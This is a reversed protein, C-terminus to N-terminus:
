QKMWSAIERLRMPTIRTFANNEDWPAGDHLGNTHVGIIEATDGRFVPSGSTGGFTDAQYFGKLEQLVRIHDESLWQRGAPAKDGAYGQVKAPQDLEDDALVRVGFHGTRTGVSCDLKLAGLDYYRAEDSSTADVWGRLAFLKTVGCRGFPKRDTNRGPFVEYNTYWDGFRTGKHVCHGATLVMNDSIMAGTCLFRSSSGPASFNIQVIARNPFATTNMVVVRDDPPIVSFPIFSGTEPDSRGREMEYVAVTETSEGLTAVEDQTLAQEQEPVMAGDGESPPLEPLAASETPAKAQLDHAVSGDPDDVPEPQYDSEEQRWETPDTLSYFTEEDLVGSEPLDRSKQYARLGEAFSEETPAGAETAGQPMFGMSELAGAAALAEAAAETAESEGGAMETASGGAVRFVRKAKPLWIRAADLGHAAPGNVLIRVRRLDGDDAPRNIRRASWYATAAMLGEKAQRALSPKEELPLRVESGRKRFNERGTLQMFGSGRYIWGDNTNRGRNGLRGGYVWNGVQQPKGAIERAKAESVTKRSFVRM